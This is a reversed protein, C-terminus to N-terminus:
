SRRSILAAAKRGVIYAGNIPMSGAGGTTIYLTSNDCKRRGFAASTPGAVSSYNPSGAIVECTWDPLVQTIENAYISALYTSNDKAIAFDDAVIGRTIVEYPGTARGPDIRVRCFPLKPTNKYYLDDGLIRISNVGIVLGAVAELKTTEDELSIAIEGTRINLSWVVGKATDAILDTGSDLSTIGNLFQADPLVAIASTQP